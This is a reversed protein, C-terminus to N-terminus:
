ISCNQLVDNAHVFDGSGTQKGEGHPGIPRCPDNGDPTGAAATLESLTGHDHIRPAEYMRAEYM